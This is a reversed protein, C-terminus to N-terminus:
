TETQEDECPPEPLPMWHTVRPEPRPQRTDYWIYVDGAIGYTEKVLFGMAVFLRKRSVSKAKYAILVVSSKNDPKLEPLEDEVSIWEM